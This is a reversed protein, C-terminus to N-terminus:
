QSGLLINAVLGTQGVVLWGVRFTMSLRISLGPKNEELAKRHAGM